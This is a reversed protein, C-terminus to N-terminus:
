QSSVHRFAEIRQALQSDLKNGKLLSSYHANNM